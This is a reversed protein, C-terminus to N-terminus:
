EERFSYHQSVIDRGLLISSFTSNQSSDIIVRSEIVESDLRSLVVDCGQLGLSVALAEMDTEISTLPTSSEIVRHAATSALLQGQQKLTLMRSVEVTGLWVVILVPLCVAAEIAAIGRRNNTFRKRKRTRM